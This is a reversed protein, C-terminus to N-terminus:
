VNQISTESIPEETEKKEPAPGFLNIDFWCDPKIDLEQGSGVMFLKGGKPVAVILAHQKKDRVLVPIGEPLTLISKQNESLDLGKQISALAVELVLANVFMKFTDDQALSNILKKANDTGCVSAADRLASAVFKVVEEDSIMM